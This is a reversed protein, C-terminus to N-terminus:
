RLEAWELVTELLKKLLPQVQAAHEPLYTFPSSEQMYTLQSLELQLAHCDEAPNGYARTIYGGKFRQNVAVTYQSQTALAKEVAQQMAPACASGSNTGINLDPLRGKFLRPVQSRVSHAEFLTVIGSQKKIRDLEQQLASHYPHWYMELRREIEADDPAYGQQYLPEEAFTSTPCLETSNAGPYLNSNDPPRNLDIVYRSYRPQIISAGLELAFPYLKELHWDTDALQLATPTMTATLATPLEVGQHPISILLPRTGKILEFVQM